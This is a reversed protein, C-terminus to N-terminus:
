RGGIDYRKRDRLEQKKGENFGSVAGVYGTVRSLQVVSHRSCIPCMAKGCVKCYALGPITAMCSPKELAKKNVPCERDEPGPTTEDPM